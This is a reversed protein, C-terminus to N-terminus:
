GGYGITFIIKEDCVQHSPEWFCSFLATDTKEQGTLGCMVAPNIGHSVFVFISYPVYNWDGLRERKMKKRKEEKKEGKKRGKKKTQGQTSRQKNNTTQEGKQSEVFIPGICGEVRLEAHSKSVCLPSHDIAPTHTHTNWREGTAM